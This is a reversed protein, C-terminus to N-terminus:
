SMCSYVYTGDVADGSLQFPLKFSSKVGSHWESAAAMSIKLTNKMGLADEPLQFLSKSNCTIQEQAHDVPLQCIYNSHLSM